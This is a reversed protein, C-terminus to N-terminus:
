AAEKWGRLVLLRVVPGSCADGRVGGGLPVGGPLEGAGQPLDRVEEHRLQLLHPALRPERARRPPCSLPIPFSWRPTSSLPHVPLEPGFDPPLLLWLRRKGRLARHHVFM